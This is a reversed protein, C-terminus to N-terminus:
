RLVEEEIDGFLQKRYEAMRRRSLSIEVGNNLMIVGKGMSKHHVRNIIFKRHVRSFGYPALMQEYDNLSTRDIFHRTDTYLITYKDEASLYYIEDLRLLHEGDIAKVLLKRNRKKERYIDQLVTVIKETTIPKLLYRFARAEYGQIAYEAYATTFILFSDPLYERIKKALTIGDMQPMVIDIMIIDPQREIPRKQIECLMKEPSLFVEVQVPCSTSERGAEWDLFHILSAQKVVTELEQLSVDEDDCLFIILPEENVNFEKVKTSM